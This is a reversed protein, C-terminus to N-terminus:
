AVSYMPSLRITSLTIFYQLLIHSLLLCILPYIYLCIETASAHLGRFLKCAKMSLYVYSFSPKLIKSIYNFSLTRSNDFEIKSINHKLLHLTIMYMYSQVNKAMEQKNHWQKLIFLRFQLYRVCSYWADLLVIM